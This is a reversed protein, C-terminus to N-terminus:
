ATDPYVPRIDSIGTRRAAARGKKCVAVHDLALRGEGAFWGSAVPVRSACSFEPSEEQWRAILKTSLASRPIWFTVGLGNQGDRYEVAEGVVCDTLDHGLVLPVGAVLSANSFAHPELYTRRDRTWETVMVGADVLWGSPEGDEPPLPEL